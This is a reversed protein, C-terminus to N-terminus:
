GVSAGNKRDVRPARRTDMLIIGARRCHLFKREGQDRGPMTHHHLPGAVKRALRKWTLLNPEILNPLELPRGQLPSWFPCTSLFAAM